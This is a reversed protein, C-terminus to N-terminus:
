CTHKNNKTEYITYLFKQLSRKDNTIFCSKERDEIVNINM